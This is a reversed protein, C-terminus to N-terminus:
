KNKPKGQQPRLQDKIKIYLVKQDDSLVKVFVEDRKQELFDVKERDPREGKNAEMLADIEQFFNTFITRASSLQNLSLKMEKNLTGMAKETRQEVTPKDKPPGGQPQAFASLTILCATAMMILNKMITNNQTQQNQLNLHCFSFFSAGRKLNNKSLFVLGRLQDPKYFINFIKILRGKGVQDGRM